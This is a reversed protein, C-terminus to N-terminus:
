PASILTWELAAVFLIKTAVVNIFIAFPAPDRQIYLVKGFKGINGEGQQQCTDARKHKMRQANPVINGVVLAMSETCNKKGILQKM